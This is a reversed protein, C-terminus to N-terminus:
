PHRTRRPKADACYVPELVRFPQSGPPIPRGPGPLRYFTPRQRSFRASMFGSLANEKGYNWRAPQDWGNEVRRAVAGCAKLGRRLEAESFQFRLGAALDDLTACGVHALYARVAETADRELARIVDPVASM